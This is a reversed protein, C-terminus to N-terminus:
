DEYELLDPDEDSEGCTKLNRYFDHFYPPILPLLDMLDKKKEASIPVSANYARKLIGSATRGRRKLSIYEFPEDTNLTNKFGIHGYNHTYLLWQCDRWFFPQGNVDKKRLVLPGKLLESFDYFDAQEMEIVKFKKSACRILTAWDHPHVVPAETKKKQKEILSHDADCEMRTHGAVLFKHNIESLATNEQMLYTFMAALHSNKNQGGCTDSYMVVKRISDPLNQIEKYLCSAIENAGRKAVSEHWLYCSAEGTTCDHITLNFTWYLRKYFAVSTQIDPTPLCQQLDFTFCKVSADNIAEEKDVRKSEYALDAATHHLEREKVLNDKENEDVCVQIKMKFLDCKHCTDTKREKFSLNMKHFEEEYVSRSVAKNSIDCYLKYMLRLNLHCPLYKKDNNRRTYHSEYSPFSNIHRKVEERSEESIKNAPSHRGRKDTETVSSMHQLKNLLALRVFKEKEDLTNLFCSKCVNKREGQIELHYLHTVDRCKMSDTKRKRSVKTPATEILSSIYQVRRDHSGLSWYEAFIVQRTVDDLIESCKMRCQKLSKMNREPIDKGKATTYAEGRHKRETRKKRVSRVWPGDGKKRKKGVSDSILDSNETELGITHNAQNLDAPKDISNYHGESDAKGGTEASSVRHDEIVVFELNRVDGLDGIQEIIVNDEIYGSSVGSEWDINDENQIESTSPISELASSSISPAVTNEHNDTEFSSLNGVEEM